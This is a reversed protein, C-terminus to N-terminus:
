SARVAEGQRPKRALALINDSFRLGRLLGFSIKQWTLRPYGPLGGDNTFHFEPAAFGAECLIRVFDKRLLPTIHAPYCSDSFAVYHGRALLAGFSRWSENNPTTVIITGGRRLLRFMERVTHRPNELHEIIEAAVILDFAEEWDPIHSNLDQQKWDVQEALNPPAPMIDVAAVRRFLGSNVLRRTLHGVGSGYDLVSGEFRKAKIVREIESYITECSHGGTLRAASIRQESLCQDLIEM